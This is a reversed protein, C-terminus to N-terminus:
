PRQRNYPDNGEPNNPAEELSLELMSEPAELLDSCRKQIEELKMSVSSQSLPTEMRNAIWKKRKVM